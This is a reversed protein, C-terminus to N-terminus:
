ESNDYCILQISLPITYHQVPPDLDACNCFAEFTRINELYTTTYLSAETNTACKGCNVTGSIFHMGGRDECQCQSDADCTVVYLRNVDFGGPPGPPGPTGPEGQEGQPGETNWSLPTESGRCDAIDDVIKIIGSRDNKCANIVDADSQGPFALFTFIGLLLFIILYSRM